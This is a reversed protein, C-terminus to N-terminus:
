HITHKNATLSLLRISIICSILARCEIKTNASSTMSETVLCKPSGCSCRAIMECRSSEYPTMKALPMTYSQHLEADKTHIRTFFPTKNEKLLIITKYLFRKLINNVYLLNSNAVQIVSKCWFSDVFNIEDDGINKM